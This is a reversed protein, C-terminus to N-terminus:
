RQSIYKCYRILTIKIRLYEAHKLAQPIVTYLSCSFVWQRPLSGVTSMEMKFPKDLMGIDIRVKHVLICVHVVNKFM